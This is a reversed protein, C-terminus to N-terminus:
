SGKSGGSMDDGDDEGGGELKVSKKLKEKKSTSTASPAKGDNNEM